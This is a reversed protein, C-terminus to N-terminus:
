IIYYNKVCKYTVISLLVKVELDDYLNQTKIRKDPDEVIMRKNYYM